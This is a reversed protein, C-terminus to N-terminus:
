DYFWGMGGGYNADWCGQEIGNIHAIIQNDGANEIRCGLISASLRWNEFIDIM